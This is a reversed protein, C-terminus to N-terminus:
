HMCFPSHRSGLDGAWARAREHAVGIRVQTAYINGKNVAAIFEGGYDCTALICDANEQTPTARYSHVFYMRHM